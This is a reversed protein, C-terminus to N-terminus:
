GAAAQLVHDQGDRAARRAHYCGDPDAQRRPDSDHARRAPPDVPGTSVRDAPPWDTPDVPLRVDVLPELGSLVLRKRMHDVDHLEAVRDEATARIAFNLLGPGAWAEVHVFIEHCAMVDMYPFHERFLAFKRPTWLARVNVCCGADNRMAGHGFCWRVEHPMIRAGSVHRIAMVIFVGYPERAEAGAQCAEDPFPFALPKDVRDHARGPHARTVPGTLPMAPDARHM